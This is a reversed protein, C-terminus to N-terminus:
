RQLILGGSGVAVVDAPSSGWVAQLDTNTQGDARPELTWDDGSVRHYIKSLRGVVFADGGPFGFVGFFDTSGNHMPTTNGRMWVGGGNTRYPFDSAIFMETAGAWIAWYNNSSSPLGNKLQNSWSIDNGAILQVGGSAFVQGGGPQGYMGQLPELTPGHVKAWQGDGSRKFITGNNGAPEQTGAAYIENAARGWIARLVLTGANTPGDNVWINGGDSTRYASGAEGVVVLRSADIAWIGHFSIGAPLTQSRDVWAAGKSPRHIVTGGTGAAWIQEGVGTLAQLHQSSPAAVTKWGMGLALDSGALDSPAGALDTSAGMDEGARLRLGAFDFCGSCCLAAAICIGRV